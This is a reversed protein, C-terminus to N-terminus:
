IRDCDSHLTVYKGAIIKLTTYFVANSMIDAQHGQDNEGDTFALSCYEDEPSSDFQTCFPFACLMM